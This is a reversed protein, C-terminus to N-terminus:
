VCFDWMFVCVSVCVCVCVCVRMSHMGHWRNSHHHLCAPVHVHVVEMDCVLWRLENNNNMVDDIARNM